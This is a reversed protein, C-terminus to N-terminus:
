NSKLKISITIYSMGEALLGHPEVNDVDHVETVLEARTAIRNVDTELGLTAYNRFYFLM